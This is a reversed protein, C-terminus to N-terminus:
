SATIYYTRWIIKKYSFNHNRRQKESQLTSQLLWAEDAKQIEWTDEMNSCTQYRPPIVSFARLTERVLTHNDESDYGKDATVVVSLPLIHSIKTIVPKFDINDHRKPARRIKIMCIIQKLVDAGLTLKIYKRRRRLKTREVYYQSAHTTKFGSSDIGIFIQRINTLLLIFSSIIRELVTGDMRAAFKQLTTYHPIHCLRLSTRLYYAEFLWEVFM